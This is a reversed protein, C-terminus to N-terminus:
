KVIEASKMEGRFARQSLAGYLQELEQLHKKYQAKLAETKEVIQAFQIQLPLPTIPLKIEKLKGTYLGGQAASNTSNKIQRKGYDSNFIWLLFASTILNHNPKILAVSRAMSFPKMNNPVIVVKGITAGVCVMLVDGPEPNCRKYIKAHDTESIYSVETLDITNEQTINRAMFYLMGIELRAVTGHEGDTIKTTVEDLRVENGKNIYDGFIELFTSKLYADLLQISQKREAILAEAKSLVAAIHKQESLSLIPIELERLSKGDIHPITAGTAKSRLFDFKSQLFKGIFVTSFKDPNNKRLLAITSGIYGTKGFGITGANAGDWAILVDEGNALIGSKDDTYKIHYDNRLDDIQLVRISNANPTESFSPKKGKKITVINGLKEFKM